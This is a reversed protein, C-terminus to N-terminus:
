ALEVVASHIEGSGLATLAENIQRLEFRASILRDLELQGAMYADILRRVDRQVDASGFLCGKLTKARGVLGAFQPIDIRVDAAGAGVFVVEGGAGTMAIAQEVTLQAGVAEITVDAGRGGTLERVAEVPDASRADIVASAGIAAALELKAVAIDLAVIEAAGALRAGQIAALGVSGCGIVAVTDDPGIAATNIAAGAGTLVGCGILSLPALPLERPVRVAAPAAVVVEEAFTGTAVMQHVPQGDATAFRPTGDLLAGTRLVDAGRECLSKQGRRCRRCEGCQIQAAIVVHDGEALDEVGDGVATVVGAGQHGLVAPLPTYLSGAQVSLDSGCVAAAAVRVSVEGARPPALELDLVRLPEHLATCVAARPM